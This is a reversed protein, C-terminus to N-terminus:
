GKESGSSTQEAAQRVRFPITTLAQGDFLLEIRCDGFNKVVGVAITARVNVTSLSGDPFEVDMIQPPQSQTPGHLQFTLEHKGATHGRAKLIVVMTLVLHPNLRDVTEPQAAVTFTDIVRILSLAGGKDEIVNECLCAAAVLPKENAM